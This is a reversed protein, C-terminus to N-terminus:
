GRRWSKYLFLYKELLGWDMNISPIFIHIEFIMRMFTIFANWQSVSDPRPKLEPEPIPM